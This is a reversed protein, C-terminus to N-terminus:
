SMQDPFANPRNKRLIVSCNTSGTCFISFEQVVVYQQMYHSMLHQRLLDADTGATMFYAHLEVTQDFHSLSYPKVDGDVTCYV